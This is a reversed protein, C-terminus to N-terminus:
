ATAAAEIPAVAFEAPTHARALAEPISDGQRIVYVKIGASLLQDMLSLSDFEAGFSRGDLLVATARVGRKALEGLGLVWEPSPSATIVVLSSRHTWLPEERALVTELPVLGEARSLALSDMIRDLQGAGTEALLLHRREGYAILGLPLQAVLYRKALSAATSVAYEDTSEALEGAQFDRHLDVVVWVEGARGLDFEKSMLKGLKATSNWHIRSMSDGFAYDRVTSAQPSITQTRILATAEGALYAAPVDFDPLEYVRPYVVIEDTGGFVRERRFLGFPDSHSVRVPGLTYMGRKLAVTRADWRALGRGDLGVATAIRAGPLDTLDEVELSQKSITSDNRVTFEEEVHEGVRVRSTKRDVTVDLGAISLLNWFYSLGITAGLVYLVRYFLSFGTAMGTVGSLLALAVVLYFRPLPRALILRRTMAKGM